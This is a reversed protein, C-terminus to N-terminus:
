KLMPLLNFDGFQSAPAKKSYKEETGGDDLPRPCRGKLGAVRIRIGNPTGIKDNIEPNATIKSNASSVLANWSRKYEDDTIENNVYKRSKQIHKDLKLATRNIIPSIKDQLEKDYKGAIAM